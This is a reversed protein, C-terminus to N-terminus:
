RGKGKKGAKSIKEAQRRALKDYLDLVVHAAAVDDLSWETEIEIL